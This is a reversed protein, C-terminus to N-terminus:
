WFEDFLGDDVFIFEVEYYYEVCVKFLEEYLIVFSDVENFVFIVVFILLINLLDIFEWVLFLNMIFYWLM